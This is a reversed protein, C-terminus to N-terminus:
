TIAGLKRLGMEVERERLEDERERHLDRNKKKKKVPNTDHHTSSLLWSPLILSTCSSHTASAASGTSFSTGTFHTGIPKVPM